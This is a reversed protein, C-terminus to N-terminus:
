LGVDLLVTESDEVSYDLAVLRGDPLRGWDSAKHELPCEMDPPGAYDWDPFGRTDKLKQCEEESIPQARPMVLCLDFPLEALVPCLINRRERTTTKWVMSEKRNCKQGKASRAFKLAWPGICITCRNTGRLDISFFM